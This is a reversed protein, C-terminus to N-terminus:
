RGRAAGGEGYRGFVRRLTDCIEGLTAYAVVAEYMPPLLPEDGRAADELRALARAVAGGDRERRVREVSAIQRAVVEPDLRHIAPLVEEGSQFRNVGVVVRTGEEVARQQRYAFEEIARSMYGREIAAVAGGMAEIEQLLRRAEAEVQDTL